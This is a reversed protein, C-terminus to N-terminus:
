QETRRLHGHKEFGRYEEVGWNTLFLDLEFEGNNYPTIFDEGKIGNGRLIQPEVKNKKLLDVLERCMGELEKICQHNYSDGRKLKQYSSLKGM